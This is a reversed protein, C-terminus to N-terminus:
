KYQGWFQFYKKFEVDGKNREIKTQIQSYELWQNKEAMHSYLKAKFNENIWANQIKWQVIIVCIQISWYTPETSDQM